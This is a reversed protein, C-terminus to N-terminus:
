EYPNDDLKKPKIDHAIKYQEWANIWRRESRKKFEELTIKGEKVHKKDEANKKKVGKRLTDALKNGAMKLFWMIFPIFPNM